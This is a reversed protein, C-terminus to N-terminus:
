PSEKRSDSVARIPAHTMNSLMRRLAGVDRGSLVFVTDESNDPSNSLTAKMRRVFHQLDSKSITMVYKSNNPECSMKEVVTQMQDDTLENQQLNLIAERADISTEIGELKDMDYPWVKLGARALIARRIFESVNTDERMALARLLARGGKEVLFPIQDFNEKRHKDVRRSEKTTM